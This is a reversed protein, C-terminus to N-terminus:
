PKKLVKPKTPTEIVRIFKSGNFGLSNYLFEKIIVLDLKNLNYNQSM